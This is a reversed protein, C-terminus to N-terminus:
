AMRWRRGLAWLAVHLLAVWGLLAVLIWSVLGVLSETRDAIGGVTEQMGVLDTRIDQTVQTAAAISEELRGVGQAIADARASADSRDTARQSVDAIASDLAVLRDDMGTILERPGDPLDLGPILREALDVATMVDGARERLVVYRDRLEQYRTTLPSLREQVAAIAAEEITPLARLSEAAVRVEAAETAGAELRVIAEDSVAVAQDLAVVARQALEDLREQVADRGLLVVAILATCAFAGVLGAIMAILGLTPRRTPAGTTSTQNM